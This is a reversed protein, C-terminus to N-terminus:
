CDFVDMTFPSAEGRLWGPPPLADTERRDVGLIDEGTIIDGPQLNDTFHSRKSTRHVESRRKGM